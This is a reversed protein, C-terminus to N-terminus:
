TLALRAEDLSFKVASPLTIATGNVCNALISYDPRMICPLSYVTGDPAVRYIIRYNGQLLERYTRAEDEPLWGGSDPHDVLQEVRAVVKQAFPRATVPADAAIYRLLDDLDDLASPAWIISAM